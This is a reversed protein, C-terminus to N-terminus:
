HSTLSLSFRFIVINPVPAVDGYYLVPFIESFLFIPEAAAAIGVVDVVAVGRSPSFGGVWYVVLFEQSWTSEM